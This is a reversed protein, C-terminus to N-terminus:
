RTPENDQSPKAGPRGPYKVIMHVHIHIDTLRGTSIYTYLITARSMWGKAGDILEMQKARGQWCSGKKTTEFLSSAWFRICVFCVFILCILKGLPRASAAQTRARAAGTRPRTRCSVRRRCFFLVSLFSHCFTLIHMVQKCSTDGWKVGWCATAAANTGAQCTRSGRVSYQM